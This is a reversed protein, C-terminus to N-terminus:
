LESMFVGYGPSWAACQPSIRMRQILKVAFNSFLPGDLTVDTTEAAEPRAVELHDIRLRADQALAAGTTSSLRCCFRWSGSKLKMSEKASRRKVPQRRFHDNNEFVKRQSLEAECQRDPTGACGSGRASLEQRALEEQRHKYVGFLSLLLACALTGATL